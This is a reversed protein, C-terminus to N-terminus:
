LETRWLGGSEGNRSSSRCVLSAFTSWVPGSAYPRAAWSLLMAPRVKDKQLSTWAMNSRWTGASTGRWTLSVPATLVSSPSTALTSTCTAWCTTCETLPSEVCRLPFFSVPLSVSFFVSTTWASSRHQQGLRTLNAEEWGRVKCKFPKVPLHVIMHTKLTQKQIFSKFCVHCQFPRVSNHILMHRKLNASLTFERSCVDCKHGKMGQLCFSLPTATCRLKLRFECSDLRHFPQTHSFEPPPSVLVFCQALHFVEPVHIVRLQQVKLPKKKEELSNPPPTTSQSTVPLLSAYWLSTRCM